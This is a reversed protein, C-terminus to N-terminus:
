AGMREERNDRNREGVEDREKRIRNEREKDRGRAPVGKKEWHRSSWSWIM